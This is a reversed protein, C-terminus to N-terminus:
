GRTRGSVEPWRVIEAATYMAHEREFMNFTRNQQHMCLIFKYILWITYRENM